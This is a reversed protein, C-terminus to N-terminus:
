GLSASRQAKFFLPPCAFRGQMGTSPQFTENNKVAPWLTNTEAERWHVSELM